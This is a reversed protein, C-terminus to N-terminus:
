DNYRVFFGIKISFIDGVIQIKMLILIFKAVITSRGNSPMELVVTSQHVSPFHCEHCWIRWWTSEDSAFQSALLRSSTASATRSSWYFMVRTAVSEFSDHGTRSGGRHNATGIEAGRCWDVGLFLFSKFCENDIKM